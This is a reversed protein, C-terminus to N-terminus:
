KKLFQFGSWIDEVFPYRDRMATYTSVYSSAVASATERDFYTYTEDTQPTAQYDFHQIGFGLFDQLRHHQSSSSMLEQFGVFVKDPPFVSDLNQLTMEYRTRAQYAWTASVERGISSFREVGSIGRVFGQLLDSRAWMNMASTIRLVPDRLLYVVRYDIQHKELQNLITRWVFVPLGSYAPTIDAVLMKPSLFGLPRRSTKQIKSFYDEGTVERPSGIEGPCSATFWNQIDQETQIQESYQSYCEDWYHLEKTGLAKFNRTKALQNYLWSTGAKQAGVGLIFL